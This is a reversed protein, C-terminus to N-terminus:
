GGIPTQRAAHYALVHDGNFIIKPGHDYVWLPHGHADRSVSSPNGLTSCVTRKDLRDLAGFLVIYPKTRSPHPLGDCATSGSLNNAGCGTLGIVILM